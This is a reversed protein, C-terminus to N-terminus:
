PLAAALLGQRYRRVHVPQSVELLTRSASCVIGRREEKRTDIYSRNSCVLLQTSAIATELGWSLLFPDNSLRTEKERIDVRKQDVYILFFSM